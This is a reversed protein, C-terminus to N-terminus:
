RSRPYIMKGCLSLDYGTLSEALARFPQGHLMELFLQVSKSFFGDKPIILDFREWGLPIFDLDLLAAVAGIAPGADARGALVELGVEVHSALEREYGPLQRCDLGAKLIERDFLLRTSAELPRNVVCLDRAGLDAVARIGRPNGKAVVLGQERRCFNVLAPVEDLESAAFAFNYEQNDEQALHSTALHCQGRRLAKLGGLSGLNGFLVTQEPNLKRFLPLSRDLLIDNSGAILLLNPIQVASELQKPYNITKSEVWQEVLEKPFLWKGTIKTAPLGKETILTYVMKENIGLFRAVEKTSLLKEM